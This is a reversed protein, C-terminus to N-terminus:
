TTGDPEGGFRIRLTDKELRAGEVPLGVLSRPLIIVRKYGGVKVILEEGKVSLSIDERTVFPLPITVVHRGDERTVSQARGQYFVQSPDAEGFCLRALELLRERGVVEQEQLPVRFIPLPSFSEEVLRTYRDQAEKWGAFYSDHVTDPLLRNLIVADTHFGFLGLYTFSRQAERIVMKEPNVVLRVTTRGRDTLLRHTRDVQEFLVEISDFFDEAPMPMGFLPKAVPRILRAARRQIPFLREMWWRFVDPYSLLRLTEGTPACDVVMVQYDGEREHRQIQLLSFLEEMGPFVTLEEVAVDGLQHWSMIAALYNQIKGWSEEMEHLTDVEQAWLNGGVLVPQPGLTADLSDALSHAADTSIVLTKYGLEACRLATAAAVSTKGVGGKGTYVIVRM